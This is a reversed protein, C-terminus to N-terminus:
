PGTPVPQPRTLVFMRWSGDPRNADYRAGYPLAGHYARLPASSSSAVAQDALSIVCVRATGSGTATGPNGFSGAACMRQAQRLIRRQQDDLARLGAEDTPLLGMAPPVSSFDARAPLVALLFAAALALFPRM